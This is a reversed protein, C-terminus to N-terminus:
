NKFINHEVPVESRLSKRTKWTIKNPYRKDPCRGEMQQRLGRQRKFAGSPSENSRQAECVRDWGLGQEYNAGSPAFLLPTDHKCLKVSSNDFLCSTCHGFRINLRNRAIRPVVVRWVVFRVDDLESHRFSFLHFELACCFEKMEGEGSKDAAGDVVNLDLFCDDNGTTAFFSQGGNGGQKGLAAPHAGVEVLKCPAEIRATRVGLLDSRFEKVFKCVQGGEPEVGLFNQTFQIAVSLIKRKM